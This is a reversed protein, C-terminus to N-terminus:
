FLFSYFLETLEYFFTRPFLFCKTSSCPFLCQPLREQVSVSGREKFKKRCVSCTFVPSVSESPSYSFQSSARGSASAGRLALEYRGPVAPNSFANSALPPDPTVTSMRSSKPDFLREEPRRDQPHSTTASPSDSVNLLFPISMVRPRGSISDGSICTDRSMSNSASTAPNM